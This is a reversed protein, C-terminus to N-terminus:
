PVWYQTGDSHRALLKYEILGRRLYAVDAHYRGLLENVQKETYREGPLFDRHVYRLVAEFKKRQAPIQKLRGDPLLFDHLVKRDYAQTDVQAAAGPLTEPKLLRNAMSELAPTNLRYFSYYSQARAQVLGAESLRALHHSVTSASLGLAGAIQEVSLEQTALLGAIKLRNEDALAKFFALLEALSDTAPTPQSTM